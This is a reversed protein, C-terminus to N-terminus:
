IIGEKKLLEEEEEYEKLDALYITNVPCVDVIEDCNEIEEKICWAKGDIFYCKNESAAVCAACGICIDRKILLYKKNQSM